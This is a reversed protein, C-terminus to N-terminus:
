LQRDRTLPLRTWPRRLRDRQRRGSPARSAVARSPFDPRSSSPPVRRGVIKASAQRILAARLGRLRARARRPRELGSGPPPRRRVAARQAAAKIRMIAPNPLPAADPPRGVARKPGVTKCVAGTYPGFSYSVPGRRLEHSSRSASRSSRHAYTGGRIVTLRARRNPVTRRTSDTRPMGPTTVRQQLSAPTPPLPHEPHQSVDAPDTTLAEGPHAPPLLATVPNSSMQTGPTGATVRCAHATTRSLMIPGCSSAAASFSAGRDPGARRAAGNANGLHEQHGPLWTSSRTRAGCFGWLDPDAAYNGV